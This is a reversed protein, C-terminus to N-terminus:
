NTLITDTAAVLQALGDEPTVSGRMIASLIAKQEDWIGVSKNGPYGAWSRAIPWQKMSTTWDPNKAYHDGLYEAKTVQLNTPMYGSGLVAITQGEPGTVFKLFEWAAKQKAPDQTLIVAANGGTPLGGKARDAVPYPATGFKFKGGIADGMSRVEATSGIFIGLKGAAFQQIAQDENLFPMETEAVFRRALAVAKRGADGGFAVKQTQPDIVQGGFNDILAQWLWDDGWEDVAYSMGDADSSGKIKRALDIIGDWDAPFADPNAGARAILDRNFYVIPTSANFPLGWQKGDVQGLALVTPSYNATTWATGEAQLVGDLPAIQDRPQLTRVLEPLTNYAAYYVDPLTDTMAARVIRQHADGYSAAPAQFKIKIDPHAQMFAEAIPEHFRKHSPWAHLVQLTVQEAAAPPAAFVAGLVLAASLGTWIRKM